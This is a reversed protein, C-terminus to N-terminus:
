GLNECQAHVKGEPYHLIDQVTDLRQPKLSYGNIDRMTRWYEGDVEVYPSQLPLNLRRGCYALLTEAALRKRSMTMYPVIMQLLQGVRRLGFVVVELQPQVKTPRTRHSFNGVGLGVLIAAYREILEFDTSSVIIKPVFAWSSGRRTPSRCLSFCGEGELFGVLWGMNFERTAQQNDM